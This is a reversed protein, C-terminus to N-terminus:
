DIYQFCPRRFPTLPALAGQIKFHSTKTNFKQFFSQKRLKSHIFHLKVVTTGVRSLHKQGGDPFIWYQGGGQFFGESAWSQFHFLLSMETTSMMSNCSKTVANNVTWKKKFVQREYIHIFMQARRFLMDRWVWEELWLRTFPQQLGGFFDLHPGEIDALM